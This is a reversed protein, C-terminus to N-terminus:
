HSSHAWSYLGLGSLQIKHKSRVGQAFLNVDPREIFGVVPTRAVMAPHLDRNSTILVLPVSRVRTLRM